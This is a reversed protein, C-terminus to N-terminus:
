LTPLVVGTRLSTLVVGFLTPFAQVTLCELAPHWADPSLLSPHILRSHSAPSFGRSRIDGKAFACRKVGPKGLIFIAHFVYM